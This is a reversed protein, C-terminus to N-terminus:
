QRICALAGESEESTTDPYQEHHTRRLRLLPLHQQLSEGLVILFEVGQWPGRVGTPTPKM